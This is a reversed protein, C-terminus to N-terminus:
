TSIINIIMDLDSPEVRQDIPLNILENAFKYEVNEKKCWELVNPWYQATYIRNDTLKKRLGAYRGLFPYVRHVNVQNLDIEIRNESGLVRHLYQYNRRRILSVQDYDISQLLNKTLRSMKGLSLENLSNESVRFSSYGAEAGQDMRKLLQDFRQFSYSENLEFDVPKQCYLYAGDPVGFFKRASYLTDIQTLPKEFFAQANDIILNPTKGKM